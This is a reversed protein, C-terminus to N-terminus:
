TGDRRRGYLELGQGMPRVRPRGFYDARHHAHGDRFRDPLLVEVPRGVLDGAQWDFLEETRNNTFQIRGSENIIVVADPAAELLSRFTTDAWRSITLDRGVISVGHVKGHVDMAPTAILCLEVPEGGKRRWSTTLSRVVEGEGVRACLVPLEDGGPDVLDWLPRGVSESAEWGLIREAAPNWSTVEGSTNLAIVADDTGEVFAALQAVPDLPSDAVAEVRERRRREQQAGLESLWAVQNARRSALDDAPTLAAEVADIITERAFPKAVYDVAGGEFARLKDRVSSLASVVVVPVDPALDQQLANLVGWGDLGPLMLDLVVLDPPDDGVASLARHADAAEVVSYGNGELVMRLLLRIDPEDEVVLIRGPVRVGRKGVARGTLLYQCYEAL